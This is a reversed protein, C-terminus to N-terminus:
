CGAVSADRPEHTAVATARVARRRMVLWAIVRFVATQEAMHKGGLDKLELTCVQIAVANDAKLLLDHGHTKNQEGAIIGMTKNIVICWCCRIPLWQRM